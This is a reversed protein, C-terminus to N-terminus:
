QDCKDSDTEEYVELLFYNNCANIRTTVSVCVGDIVVTDNYCDLIYFGCGVGMDFASRFTRDRRISGTGM